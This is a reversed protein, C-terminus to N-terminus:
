DLNECFQYVSLSLGGYQPPTKASIKTQKSVDGPNCFSQASRLGFVQFVRLHM